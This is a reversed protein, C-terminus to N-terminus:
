KKVMKKTAILKGDAILSYTYIGKELNEGYVTLTGNGRENINVENIIRGNMDYFLMKANLVDEPLVYNIQTSEAFPNPLNQQLIIANINELKVSQTTRDNNSENNMTRNNGTCINASEICAELYALRAELNNIISDKAIIKDDLEKVSEVLLPAVRDYNVHVLNSDDVFTLLPEVAAVEQAIFGIHELSDLEMNNQASTSWAYSVGRMQKVKALSGNLTQVNTKVTQDSLTSKDIKANIENVAQVTIPILSNYNLSKYDVAPYIINGLSDLKEPMHSQHILEPLVQEVEQAIFGYQLREEFNFQPFNATDMQYTHPRLKRLIDTAGKINEVDTKFMQDSILVGNIIEVNGNFFGARNTASGGSASAYIGYSNVTTGASMFLGAINQNSPTFASFAIGQVGTNTSTANSAQSIIGQNAGSPGNALFDGATSSASINSISNIVRARVGINITSNRARFEGGINTTKLTPDQIGIAEAFIGRFTLFPVSAVDENSFGGAITNVGVLAGANQYSNFKAPLITSCPTGVSVSNTNPLGNGSFYYNFNNLPVEYSGILPNQPDSCYNGVGGGFDSISRWHVRNHDNSDIVLVQLLTTDETVHRIRLDGDIDLKADVVDAPATNPGTPSFNGIGMMGYNPTPLTSAKKPDFRAVELGSAVAGGNPNSSALNETFIFRLNDLSDSGWNVVADQTSGENKLGVYINDIDDSTFTGVNMWDRWGDNNTNVTNHGLHLLSLPRTIPNNPDLSIAVRTIEGNLGAPNNVGYGGSALNTPASISTIRMRELTNGTAININNTNVDTSFLLHRTEQNYMLANGNMFPNQEGRIGIRLGDNVTEETGTNILDDRNTYQTYVSRLKMLSLHQLSAPRVYNPNSQVVGFVPGLGFDGSGTFRALHRGDLDNYVDFDDDITTNGNGTVTFRFVIDDPGFSALPDNSMNIVMENINGPPFVSRLGVYGLDIQDSFTIGTRMWPRYGGAFVFSNFGTRGNLHLLSFPGRQDWLGPNLGGQSPNGIGVFGNTPVNYGDLTVTRDANVHIRERNTTFFKMPTNERNRLQAFTSFPITSSSSYGVEFGDNANFGTSLDTYKTTTNVLGLTPETQHLHLRATPTFGLPLDNGMAIRGDTNLPGNGFVTMRNIGNTYTYIPSNWMTGFINNTGAFGIPNNGGRYWASQSTQSTNNINPPPTGTPPQAYSYSSILLLGLLIKLNKM